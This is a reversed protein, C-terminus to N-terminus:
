LDGRRRAQLLAHNLIAVVDDEHAVVALKNWSRPYIVRDRYLEIQFNQRYVDPLTDGPGYMKKGGDSGRVIALLERTSEYDDVELFEVLPIQPSGSTLFAILYKRDRGWAEAREAEGLAIHVTGERETEAAFVRYRVYSELQEPWTYSQGELERV